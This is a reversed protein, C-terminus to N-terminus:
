KFFIEMVENDTLNLTEKIKTIDVTNFRIKGKRKDYLTRRDIGIAESLHNFTDYKTLIMKSKLLKENLM